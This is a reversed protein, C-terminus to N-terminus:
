KTVTSLTSSCASNCTHQRAPGSTAAGAAAAAGAANTEQMHCLRLARALPNSSSQWPVLSAHKMCLLAPTLAHSFSPMVAEVFV